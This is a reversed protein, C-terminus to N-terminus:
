FRNCDEICKQLAQEFSDCEESLFHRPVKINNSVDDFNVLVVFWLMHLPDQGAEAVYWGKPIGLNLTGNPISQSCGVSMGLQNQSGFLWKKVLKKM